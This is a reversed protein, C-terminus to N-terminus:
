KTTYVARKMIEIESIDENEFRGDMERLVFLKMGMEEAIRELKEQDLTVDVDGWWIKGSLTFINANFYVEHDPYKNKYSSKSGAVLRGFNLGEKLFLDRM